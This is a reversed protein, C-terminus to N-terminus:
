SENISSERITGHEAALDELEVLYRKTAVDYEVVWCPLMSWEHSSYHLVCAECTLQGLVGIAFRCLDRCKNTEPAHVLANTCKNQFFNRVQLQSLLGDGSAAVLKPPFKCMAGM